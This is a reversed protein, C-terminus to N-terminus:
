GPSSMSELTARIKRKLVTVSSPTHRVRRLDPGLFTMHGMERSEHFYMVYHIDHETDHVWHAEDITIGLTQSWKM